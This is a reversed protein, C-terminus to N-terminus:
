WDRLLRTVLRLSPEIPFRSDVVILPTRFTEARGRFREYVRLDAQSYGQRPTVLRERVTTAPAVLRVAVLPADAQRAVVFFRRRDSRTLNTADVLAVKGEVMAAAALREVEDFVRASEWPTFRPVRFLAARLADSEIHEAAIRELLAHAFHTKGTGPLGSLLVLGRAAIM